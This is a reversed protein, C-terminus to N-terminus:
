SARVLSPFENGQHTDDLPPVPVPVSEQAAADQVAADQVAVDQVARSADLEAGVRRITERLWTHGPDAHRNHHWYLAEVLPV